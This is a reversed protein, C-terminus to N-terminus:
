KGACTVQFPVADSTKMPGNHGNPGQVMAQLRLQGKLSRLFTADKDLTTSGAADVTATGPEGDTFKLGGVSAYFRYSITAPGDVAITGKVQLKTGCPGADPGETVSLTLADIKALPGAARPKETKTVAASVAGTALDATATAQAEVSASASGRINGADDMVANGDMCGPPPQLQAGAPTGFTLQTVEFLIVPRGKAGEAELKLLWGGDEALWVRTPWPEDPDAPRKGGVFAEIRAARGAVTGAGAPQRSRGNTLEALTELTGTVPDDAVPARASVYRGWSCTGAGSWGIWLVRHAEFDYLSAHAGAREIEREIRERAGDRVITVTVKRDLLAGEAKLTYSRPAESQARAVSGSSVLLVLGVVAAARNM